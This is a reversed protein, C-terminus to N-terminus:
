RVISKLSDLNREAKRGVRIDNYRWESIVKSNGSEVSHCKAILM